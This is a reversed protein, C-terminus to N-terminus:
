RRADQQLRDPLRCMLSQELAHAANLVLADAFRKGVIQLGAPLSAPTLGCPISAAPQQTLNFPYTFPTWGLWSAFGGQAPSESGLAFPLVPVAPTVLLDITEYLLNLRTALQERGLQAARLEIASIRQGAEAMRVLGPDVLHHDARPISELLLACGVQWQIEIQSRAGSLDIPVEHVEAGLGQLKRVAADVLRRIDTNTPFDADAVYGIRLGTLDAATPIDFSRACAPAATADRPDAGSMV